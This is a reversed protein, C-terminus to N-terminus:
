TAYLRQLSDEFLAYREARNVLETRSRGHSPQYRATLPPNLKAADHISALEGAAVLALVAAGRCTAERENPVVVDVECVDAKLQNRFTSATGGGTSVIQQARAGTFSDINRKLLHALGEEVAYALDFRDHSLSIGVFAGRADPLYDPPNLGTLYPLFVPVGLASRSTLERELEAHSLNQLGERRFWELVVGGSDAGNFLVIDDPHLGTHFSIRRSPDFRWDSALMSLSLVTGASESIIGARYSGTGAMACFHDLAGVNVRYAVAEPLQAVVDRMVPGVDSGAAAVEPLQDSTIGCFELMEAWYESRRVDWLYTFGRTSVEGVSRGTFCRILYDKVMLVEHTGAMTEPEHARLWRLKAAPWAASAFPQGSTEFAADASFSAAMLEAEVGARSDLWSLAPRVPRGSADVLVLSEAQGTFALVADHERTTVAARRACDAVLALITQFLAEADFEVRDGSREYSVPGSASALVALREDYLVVKLNTTGVDIAYVLMTM